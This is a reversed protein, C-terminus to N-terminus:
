TLVINNAVARLFEFRDYTLYNETINRLRTQNDHWKRKPAAKLVRGMALEVLCIETDGQEKQVELLFAYLDPHDKGVLRRFRNHWGESVNNTRHQGNLTADYVNWFEIPYRPPLARVRGRGRGTAPKGIVYYEGFYKVVDELEEPAEAKILQYARSVDAIPVFALALLMHTYLKIERDPADYVGQLGAAQVHRYLSQGLHFFCGALIAEPFVESGGNITAKEFDSMIRRPYCNLIGYNEASQRVARFVTAYEVSEKSTLIAYM